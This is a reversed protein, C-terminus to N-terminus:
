ESIASDLCCLFLHLKELSEKRFVIDSYSIKWSVREALFFMHTYVYVYSSKGLRTVLHSLVWCHSVTQIVM